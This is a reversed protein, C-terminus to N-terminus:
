FSSVIFIHSRRFRMNEIEALDARTIDREDASFARAKAFKKALKGALTDAGNVSKGRSTM